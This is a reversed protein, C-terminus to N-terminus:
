SIKVMYRELLLYIGPKWLISQNFEIRKKFEQIYLFRRDISSIILPSMEKYGATVNNV